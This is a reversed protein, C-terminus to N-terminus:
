YGPNQVLQPNAQMDAYPVPYLADTTQWGTKLTGLVADTRGWRKLDFWRHGGETFLEVRREQELAALLASQDAAATNGLGARNRIVNIDSRSGTFNSQMARAESRILYIEALRFLINCETKATGAAISAVKYKAPYAYPIGSVTNTKVWQTKRQDGPEFANLLGNAIVFSPRVTASAPIFANGEATCATPLVPILQWITEGSNTLFVSALSSPLSYTGASIIESAAAEALAWEKKYLHVRAQLAKAAWRNPRARDTSAYTVPLLSVAKTLDDQIQLYVDEQRSRGLVANVTYDTTVILPIDGFVQLLNFHCYARVFYLEGLMKTKVSDAIASSRNLGEICANTSYILEYGKTWFRSSVVFDTSLLNNGTFPDYTASTTSNYIEDASLGTYVTFGGNVFSLNAVMMNSYLGAIASRASAETAFLAPTTVEGAPPPISVFKKCAVASCCCFIILLFHRLLRLPSAYIRKM